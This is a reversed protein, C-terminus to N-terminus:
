DPCQAQEGYLQLEAGQSKGIWNQQMVRVRRHWGKLTDLDSLLEEAYHTIKLFWQSM